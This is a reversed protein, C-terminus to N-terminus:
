ALEVYAALAAYLRKAAPLVKARVSNVEPRASLTEPSGNPPLGIPHDGRYAALEMLSVLGYHGRSIDLFTCDPFVWFRFLM